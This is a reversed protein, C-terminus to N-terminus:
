KPFGCAVGRGPWRLFCQNCSVCDAKTLKGDYFKKILFPDRILPRAISVMECDGNKVLEEMKSFERNGGVIALPVDPNRKRVVRAYDVTYGENFKEFEPQTWFWNYMDNLDKMQNSNYKHSLRDNLPRKVGRSMNIANLFGTSIEFLDVGSKKVNEITEACIEPTIGDKLCDHGNCKAIIALKESGKVYKRIGDIINRIIRSRNVVNGGYEDTRKNVAPSAFQSLLYGHAYHIMIGDVGISAANAAANVFADVIADIEVRSFARNGRGLANASPGAVSSPGDCGISMPDCAIGGAAIQFVVKSGIRHIEDVTKQWAAAHMPSSMGTQGLFVRGTKMPYMFGPIILGVQGHALDVMHNLEDRSPLGDSDADRWSIPSRIFRNPVTMPGLKFPTFLVSDRFM